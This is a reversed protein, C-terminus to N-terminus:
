YMSVSPLHITLTCSKALFCSQCKEKCALSKLIRLASLEFHKFHSSLVNLSQSTWEWLDNKIQSKSFNKAEFCNLSASLNTLINLSHSLCLWMHMMCYVQSVWPKSPCFCRGLLLGKLCRLDPLWPLFGWKLKTRMVSQGEPPPPAKRHLLSLPTQNEFNKFFEFPDWSFTKKQTVHFKEGM